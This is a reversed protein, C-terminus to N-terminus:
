RADPPIYFRTKEVPYPPPVNKLAWIWVFFAGVTALVLPRASRQFKGESDFGRRTLSFVGGLFLAFFFVAVFTIM